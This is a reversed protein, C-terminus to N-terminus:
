CLPVVYKKDTNKFKSLDIKLYNPVLCTLHSIKIRFQIFLLVYCYFPNQLEHVYNKTVLEHVKDNKKNNQQQKHWSIYLTYTYLWDTSNNSPLQENSGKQKQQQKCFFLYIMYLYLIFIVVFMFLYKSM